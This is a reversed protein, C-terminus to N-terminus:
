AVSYVGGSFTVDVTSLEGLSMNAVPLSELYAGTLTFTKTVAGDTISAVVTTTTGVLAALTAYTESTSYSQYLTMTCENTYLGGVFKRSTDGFSTSELSDRANVFNISTCQDKLDVANVTLTTLNSLFTSTAM